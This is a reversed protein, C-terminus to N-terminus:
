NRWVKHRPQRCHFQHLYPYYPDSFNRILKSAGPNPSGLKHVSIQPFVQLSALWSVVTFHLHSKSKSFTLPQRFLRESLEATYITSESTNVFLLALM